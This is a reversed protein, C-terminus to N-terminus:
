LISRMSPILPNSPTKSENKKALWIQDVIVEEPVYGPIAADLLSIVQASDEIQFALELQHLALKLSSWEETKENVRLIKPHLTPTVDSSILLEEELKEGPRLGIFEIAITGNPHKLTREKHGSLRIMRQAIDLIKVPLGMDLVFTEGGKGMAGAQIVLQAAEPITMFYRTAEPDTITVPGGSAIQHQFLPIISGSSGLVNGFRVISFRTQDSQENLGQLLLEAFRKSAGMVSRPYVAKDTSILVFDDVHSCLAASASVWTGMINNEVCSVINEEVLPVHKYAAAHYLTNVQYTELIYAMKHSNQVSGILYVVEIPSEKFEQKLQFLGYECIDYAILKQPNRQLVQRCIESGISGGAGTVMVVKEQIPIDLLHPQPLIPSRGLLQEFDFLPQPQHQPPPTWHPPASKSEEKM